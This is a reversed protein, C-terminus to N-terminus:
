SLLKDFFRHFGWLPAIYYGPADDRTLVEGKSLLGQFPPM